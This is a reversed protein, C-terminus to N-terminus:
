IYIYTKKLIKTKSSSKVITLILFNVNILNRTVVNDGNPNVNELEM